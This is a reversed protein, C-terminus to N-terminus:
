FLPTYQKRQSSLVVLAMVSRIFHQLLLLFPIRLPLFYINYCFCYTPLRVMPFLNMMLLPAVTLSSSSSFPGVVAIMKSVSKNLPVWPRILDNVSIFKLISSFSNTNSCQDFIEYGLAVNPLLNTSNNIEEVTFRMLQFRRYSSLVFTQSHVYFMPLTTSFDTKM